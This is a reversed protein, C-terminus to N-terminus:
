PGIEGLTKAREASALRAALEARAVQRRLDSVLGFADLVDLLRVSGGGLHRARALEFNREALPLTERAAAVDAEARQQDERLRELSRTVDRRAEDLKARATAVEAQAASLKAARAADLLPVTYGILFQAGGDHSFADQPRVGIAGADATLGVNGWAEARVARAGQEAAALAGRAATVEAAAEVDDPAALALPSSEVLASAIVPQGVLSALDGTTTVLEGEVQRRHTEETTVALRARLVDNEPVASLREQRELLAVYNTLERTAVIGIGVDTRAALATYYASRVVFALDARSQRETGTAAGLRATAAALEADRARDFLRTEMRVVAQTSGGNTVAEDYGEAKGYEAHGAITPVYGSRAVGVAARASATQFAAIRAAPARGLAARVCDEVSLSDARAASQVGALAVLPAAIAIRTWM